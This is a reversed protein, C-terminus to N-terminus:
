LKLGTMYPRCGVGATSADSSVLIRRRLNLALHGIIMTRCRFLYVSKSGTSRYAYGFGTCVVYLRWLIDGNDAAESNSLSWLPMMDPLLAPWFFAGIQVLVQAVCIM